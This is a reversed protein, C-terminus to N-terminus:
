TRFMFMYFQGHFFLGRVSCRMNNRDTRGDDKHSEHLIFKKELRTLSM